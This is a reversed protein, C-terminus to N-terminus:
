CFSLNSFFNLFFYRSLVKMTDATLYLSKVFSFAEVPTVASNCCISEIPNHVNYVLAVKAEKISYLNKIDLTLERSVVCRLSLYELAPADIELSHSDGHYYVQDYLDMHKLSPSSIKFSTPIDLFLRTVKLYKLVTCGSVLNQFSEDTVFMVGTLILSTLRPLSVSNSPVNIFIDGNSYVTLIELTQCTFLNAPLELERYGANCCDLHLERINKSIAIGFWTKFYSPDHACLCHLYFKDITPANHLQLISNVFRTFKNCADEDYRTDSYQIDICHVNTWLFRWRRSLISTEAASKIPLLSLIDLLIEDPLDSIRDVLSEAEVALKKCNGGRDSNPSIESSSPCAM